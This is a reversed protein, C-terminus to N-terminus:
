KPEEDSLDGSEHLEKLIEEVRRGYEASRDVRFHLEPLYRMRVRRGLEHRLFGKARELTEMTRTLEDDGLASVFVQAERLDNSVLVSTLTLFGCRPDKLRRRIIDSLEAQIQDAVRQARPNGPM